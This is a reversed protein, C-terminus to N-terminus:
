GSPKKAKGSFLERWSKAAVDVDFRSAAAKIRKWARDREADSVNEVQDFRAVANRVHAADNLPEKREEPFAFSKAGLENKESASMGEGTRPTHRNHARARQVDRAKKLNTRAAAKQRATAM